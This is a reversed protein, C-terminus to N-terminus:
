GLNPHQSVLAVLLWDRKAEDQELVQKLLKRYHSTGSALQYLRSWESEFSRILDTIPTGTTHQLTFLLMQHLLASIHIRTTIKECTRGCKDLMLYLALIPETVLQIIVLLAQQM